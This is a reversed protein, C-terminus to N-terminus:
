SSRDGSDVRWGTFRVAEYEDNDDYGISKHEDFGKIKRPYQVGLYDEAGLTHLERAHTEDPGAM